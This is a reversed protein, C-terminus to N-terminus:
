ASAHRVEREDMTVDRDGPSWSGYRNTARWHLRVHVRADYESWPQHWARGLRMALVVTADPWRREAEARAADNEADRFAYGAARGAAGAECRADCYVDHTAVVPPPESSETLTRGCRGCEFYWGAALKAALPVPGPAYADFAPSRRAGVDFYETDELGMQRAERSTRAFVVRCGADDDARNRLTYARLTTNRPRVARPKKRATV